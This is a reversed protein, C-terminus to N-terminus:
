KKQRRIYNDIIKSKIKYYEELTIYGKEYFIEILDLKNKLERM